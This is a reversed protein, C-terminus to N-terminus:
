PKKFERELAADLVVILGLPSAASVAWRLGPAHKNEKHPEAKWSAFDPPNGFYAGATEWGDEPPDEYCCGVWHIDGDEDEEQTLHIQYGFPLLKLNKLNM